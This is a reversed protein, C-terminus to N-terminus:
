DGAAEVLVLKGKSVSDSLVRLRKAVALQDSLLSRLLHYQEPKLDQPSLNLVGTQMLNALGSLAQVLLYKDEPVKSTDSMTM